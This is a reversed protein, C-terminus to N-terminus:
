PKPRFGGFPGEPACTRFPSTRLFLTDRLFEETTTAPGAWAEISRGMSDQGFIFAIGNRVEDERATMSLTLGDDCTLNATIETIGSNSQWSGACAVGDSTTVSVPGEEWGYAEGFFAIDAFQPSDPPTACGLVRICSADSNAIWDCSEAAM